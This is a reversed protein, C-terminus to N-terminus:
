EDCVEIDLPRSTMKPFEEMLKDVLTSKGSSINGDVSISVMKVIRKLVKM